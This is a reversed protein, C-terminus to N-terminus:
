PQPQLVGQFPVVYGAAVNVDFALSQYGPARLEIRHVGTALTLPRAQPGFDDARGAFGGDVWVEADSPTVDISVGGYAVTGPATTGPVISIGGPPLAQGPPGTATGSTNYAPSGTSPYPSAYPVPYPVPYPAPYAYAGSYYPYGGGYAFSPFPVAFGAYFGIGLTARPRFMYYPHAYRYPWGYYSPGRYGGYIPGRFSGYVPHRYTGYVPGPYGYPPRHRQAVVAPPPGGPSPGGGAPRPVAHRGTEPPPAAQPQGGGDRRRGRQAADAPMAALAVAAALGVLPFIRARFM